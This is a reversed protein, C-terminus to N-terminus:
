AVNVAEGPTEEYLGLECGRELEDRIAAFAVMERAAVRAEGLARGGDRLNALCERVAEQVTGQADGHKRSGGQAVFRLVETQVARKAPTTRGDDRIRILERGAGLLAIGAAVARTDESRDDRLDRRMQDLAEAFTTQFDGLTIPSSRGGIRAFTRHAIRVFRRRAAEPTEPAVITYLASATAIALAIAISINLFGVPDYAMRNQFAAAHIFYLAAIFGIGATKKHAMLYAFFFLAPAIILAFMPFGAANPLLVEVIAFAPITFVCIV